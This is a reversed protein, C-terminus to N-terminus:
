SEESESDEDEGKLRTTLAFVVVDTLPDDNAREVFELVNDRYGVSGLSFLALNELVSVMPLNRGDGEVSDASWHESLWNLDFGPGGTIDDDSDFLANGESPWSAVAEQLLAELAAAKQEETWGKLAELADNQETM